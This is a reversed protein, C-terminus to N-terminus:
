PQFPQFTDKIRRLRRFVIKMQGMIAVCVHRHIHTQKELAALYGASGTGRGEHEKGIVNGKGALWARIVALTCRVVQVDRTLAYM